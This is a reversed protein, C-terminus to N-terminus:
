IRLCSFLTTKILNYSLTYSGVRKGGWGGGGGGGGGVV